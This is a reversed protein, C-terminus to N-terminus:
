PSLSAESMLRRKTARMLEEVEFSAYWEQFQQHQFVLDGTETGSRVLLHHSVLVDLVVAPQPANSIQGQTCLQDVIRKVVKRALIDPISTNAAYTAEVALAKLIEKHFGFLMDHLAEAKDTVREHEIVFLGLVEEKTKPFIEGLTHALLATLYLPTAVLERVGTTQWAHDLIVEGQSGRLARAIELQQDETLADIEVLPGSIPVDLAQRRASVVIGLDPFDRQLARIEHYVRKRSTAELENWGDMILVLGGYHALLKLHGESTGVFAQRRM